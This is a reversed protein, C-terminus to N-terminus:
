CQHRISWLLFIHRGTSKVVIRQSVLNFKNAAVLLKMQCSSQKESPLSKRASRFKGREIEARSSAFLPFFDAWHFVARLGLKSKTTVTTAYEDEVIHYLIYKKEKTLQM